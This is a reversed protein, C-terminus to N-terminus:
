LKINKRNYSDATTPSHKMSKALEVKEKATFNPDAMKEAIKMHRYESIGGKVGIKANQDHVFQTLKKSGFLYDGMKLNNNKIYERILNSVEKSLTEEVVGYSNSTKHKNIIITLDSTKNLPIIIYNIKKDIAEKKNKIMKLVFDDRMTKDEYLKSLVFMKSKDGFKNKIIVLYKTLHRSEKNEIKEKTDESSQVKTIDFEKKLLEKNSNLHFKDILFVCTQFMGKIVNNAYPEGNQKKANNIAKITKKVNNKKLIDIINKKGTCVVIRALDAQYKLLTKERDEPIVKKLYEMAEDDTLTKAKSFDLTPKEEITFIPKDAIKPAIHVVKKVAPTIPPPPPPPPNEAKSAKYKERRLANIQDKNIGYFKKSRMRGQAKIKSEYDEEDVMM